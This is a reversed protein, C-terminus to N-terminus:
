GAGPRPPVETATTSAAERAIMTATIHQTNSCRGAQGNGHITPKSNPRCPAMKPVNVPPDAFGARWSPGASNEPWVWRSAAYKIAGTTPPASEANATRRASM